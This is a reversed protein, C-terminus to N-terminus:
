SPGGVPGAHPTPTARGIAITFWVSALLDAAGVITVWPGYAASVLGSRGARVVAIAVVGGAVATLSAIVAATRIWRLWLATVAVVALLPFLPWLKLCWGVASSASYGLREVIAFVDYSNRRRTGSRVWPLFTGVVAVGAAVTALWRGIEDRRV